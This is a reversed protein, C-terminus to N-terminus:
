RVATYQELDKWGCEHCKCREPSDPANKWVREFCGTTKLSAAILFPKKCIM